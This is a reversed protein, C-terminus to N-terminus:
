SPYREDSIQETWDATKSVLQEQIAIHPVTGPKRTKFERNIITETIGEQLITWSVQLLLSRHVKSVPDNYIVLLASHYFLQRFHNYLEAFSL